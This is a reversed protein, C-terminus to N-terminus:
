SQSKITKGRQLGWVSRADAVGFPDIFHQNMATKRNEVRGDDVHLRIDIRGGFVGGGIEVTYDGGIFAFEGNPYRPPTSGLRGHM